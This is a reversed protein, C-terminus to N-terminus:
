DTRMGGGKKNDKKYKQARKVAYFEPECEEKLAGGKHGCCRM